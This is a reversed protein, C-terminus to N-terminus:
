QMGEPNRQAAISLSDRLREPHREENNVYANMEISRFVTASPHLTLNIEMIIRVETHKKENAIPFLM